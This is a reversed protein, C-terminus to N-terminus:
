SETEPMIVHKSLYLKRQKRSKMRFSGNLCHDTNLCITVTGNIFCRILFFHDGCSSFLVLRSLRINSPPSFCIRSWDLKRQTHWENLIDRRSRFFRQYNTWHRYIGSLCTWVKIPMVTSFLTHVIHIGQNILGERCHM